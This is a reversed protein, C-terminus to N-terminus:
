TEKMTSSTRRLLPRGGKCAQAVKPTRSALCRPPKQAWYLYSIDVNETETFDTIVADMFGRGAFLRWLLVHPWPFAPRMGCLDKHPGPLLGTRQMLTHMESPTVYLRYDHANNQMAKLVNQLIWISLYFSLPTRNITDFIFFGNPKLVRHIESLALPLNHLHELVNPCFIADISDTEFPLEYTSGVVQFQGPFMSSLHRQIEETAIGAGCGVELVKATAVQQPLDSRVAAKAEPTCARNHLLKDIFYGVRLPNICHLGCSDSWWDFDDSDYMYNDINLSGQPIEALRDPLPAPVSPAIRLASLLCFFATLLTTLLTTAM